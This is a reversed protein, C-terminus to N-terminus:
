MDPSSSPALCSGRLAERPPFHFCICSHQPTHHAASVAVPCGRSSGAPPLAGPLWPWASKTRPAGPRGPHGEWAGRAPEGQLLAGTPAPGPPCGRAGGQRPEGTLPRPRPCVRGGGRRGVESIPAELLCQPTVALLRCLPPARQPKPPGMTAESRPRPSSSRRPPGQHKRRPSPLLSGSAPTRHSTPSTGGQAHGQCTAGAATCVGILSNRGPYHRPGTRPPVPLICLASCHPVGFQRPRPLPPCLGPSDRRRAWSAAM